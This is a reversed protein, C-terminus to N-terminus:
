EEWMDRRPPPRRGPGGGRTTRDTTGRARRRAVLAAVILVVGVLAVIGAVALALPSRTAGSPSTGSPAASQGVAYYGLRSVNAHVVQSAISDRSPISSWTRADTSALLSDEGILGSFLLPYALRLQAPESLRKVPLGSPQYTAAVLYVNGAITLGSPLAGGAAPASPTLALRVSVDSGHPPIAGTALVLEAQFDKTPFVGAQSGAPGLPVDASGSAPPQNSSALAPPPSVWNYQAPPALGDLVPRDAFPDLRAGLLAAIVYVVALAVGAAVARRAGSM